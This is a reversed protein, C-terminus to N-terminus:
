LLREGGCVRFGVCVVGAVTLACALANYEVVILLANHLAVVGRNQLQMPATKGSQTEVGGGGGYVCVQGMRRALVGDLADLALSGCVLGACLWLQAQCAVAAALLTLRLYDVLNAAYLLM